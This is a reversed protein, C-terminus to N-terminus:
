FQEKYSQVYAYVESTGDSKLLLIQYPQFKDDVEMGPS